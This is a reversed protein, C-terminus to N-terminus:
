MGRHAPQGARPVHHATSSPGSRASTALRGASGRCLVIGAGSREGDCRAHQRTQPSGCRNASQGNANTPGDHLPRDRGHLEGPSQHHDRSHPQDLRPNCGWCRPRRCRRRQHDEVLANGSVPRVGPQPRRVGTQCRPAASSCRGTFGLIAPSSSQGPPCPAADAAGHERQSDRAQRGAMTSASTSGARAPREEGLPVRAGLGGAPRRGVGASYQHAPSWKRKSGRASAPDLGRLAACRALVRLARLAKVSGLVPRRKGPRRGRADWEPREKKRRGPVEAGGAARGTPQLAAVEGDTGSDNSAPREKPWGRPPQAKRGGDSLQPM